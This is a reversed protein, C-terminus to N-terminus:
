RVQSKVYEEDDYQSNENKIAKTFEDNNNEYITYGKNFCTGFMRTTESIMKVKEIYADMKNFFVDADEGQWITKLKEIEMQWKDIIYKLDDSSKNMKVEAYRLEDSDVEFDM